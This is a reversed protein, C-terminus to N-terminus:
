ESVLTVAITRNEVMRRAVPKRKPLWDNEAFWPLPFLAGSSSISIGVTKSMGLEPGGPVTIFRVPLPKM